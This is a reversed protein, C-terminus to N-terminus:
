IKVTLQKKTNDLTKRLKKNLLFNDYKNCFESFEGFCMNHFEAKFTDKGEKDFGVTFIKYEEDLNVPPMLSVVIERSEKNVEIYIDGSQYFSLNLTLNYQKCCEESFELLLDYNFIKSM